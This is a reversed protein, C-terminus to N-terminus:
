GEIARVRVSGVARAGARAGGTGRRHRPASPGPAPGVARPDAPGRTRLDAPGCTRLDAPGCTRLDAPGCTRLDAPGCTRPAPGSEGCGCRPGSGDCGPTWRSRDLALVAFVAEHVRWLADGSAVMPTEAPSEEHRIPLIRPDVRGEIKLPPLVPMGAPLTGDNPIVKMIEDWVGARLWRNFRSHVTKWLVDGSVEIGHWGCGTRAKFLIGDVVARGDILRHNPPEWAKVVPEVLAWM